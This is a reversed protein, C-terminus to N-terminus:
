DVQIQAFAQLRSLLPSVMPELIAQVGPIKYQRKLVQMLAEVSPKVQALCEVQISEPIRELNLAIVRQTIAEIGSETRRAGAEDQIQEVLKGLDATLQAISQTLEQPDLTAADLPVLPQIQIGSYDSSAQSRWYVFATIGIGGVLLTYFLVRIVLPGQRHMDNM